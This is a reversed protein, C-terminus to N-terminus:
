NASPIKVATVPTMTVFLCISSRLAVNEETYWPKDAESSAKLLCVYGVALKKAGL